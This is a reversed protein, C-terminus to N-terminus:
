KERTEEIVLSVQGRRFLSSLPKFFNDLFRYLFTLKRELRSVKLDMEKLISAMGFAISNGDPSVAEYLWLGSFLM